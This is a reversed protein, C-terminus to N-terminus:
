YGHGLSGEAPRVRERFVYYNWVQYGIILPLFIAGVWTMLMLTYPQSATGQLTLSLAPDITSPLVVGRTYLAVFVTLTAFVITLGSMAFALVDRRLVLALWISALTAFAAVPFLWPVVGFNEFLGETIYGQIVFVLIAVTALAGWLFAARRAREYLSTDRHLRLLLFNAGHLVFLLLTAMGGAISFPTFIDGLGGGVREDPGVPM